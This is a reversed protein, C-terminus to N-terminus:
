AGPTRPLRRRGARRLRLGLLLAAALMAVGPWRQSSKSGVSCGGDQEVVAAVLDPESIRGDDSAVTLQFRYAGSEAPTFSLASGGSPLAVSPGDLQKWAYTISRGAPDFSQSADFTVRQGAVTAKFRGARAVPPGDAFGALRLATALNARAVEAVMFPDVHDPKDRGSHYHPYHRWWAAALTVAPIGEDHFPRHDSRGPSHIDATVRLQTYVLSAAHIRGALGRSDAFADVLMKREGGPDYGIMDMNLVALVDGLKGRAKLDAVMHKSGWLGEEEGAFFVLTVPAALKEASLSRAMALLGATGSANDEAGPALGDPDFTISDYHACAIVAPKGAVSGPFTVMVNNVRVPPMDFPVLKPKLGAAKLKDRVMDTAEHFDPALSFRSRLSALDSVDKKIRAADLRSLAAEIRTSQAAVGSPATVAVVVGATAL